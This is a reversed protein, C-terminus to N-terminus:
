KNPAPAPAGDANWTDRVYLWRGGVKRSVSLYKGVEVVKGAKDKVEYTGSSWGWDGSSGGTPNAGLVFRVGERSAEAIDKAYYARIAARGSVAPAGPPMLVAQEDYLNAVGDVDGGNYAKAWAEDAAHLAATDSASVAGTAAHGAALAIVATVGLVIAARRTM